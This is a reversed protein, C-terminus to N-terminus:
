SLKKKFIPDYRLWRVFHTFRTPALEFNLDSNIEVVQGLLGDREVVSELQEVGVLRDGALGHDLNESM